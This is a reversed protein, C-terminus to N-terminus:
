INKKIFEKLMKIGENLNKTNDFVGVFNERVYEESTVIYNNSFWGEGLFRSKYPHLNNINETSTLPIAFVMGNKIKIIVCPRKKAGSCGIFVDGKKLELPAENKPTSLSTVWERVKSGIYQQHPAIQEIIEQKTAM